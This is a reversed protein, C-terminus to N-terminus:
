LKWMGKSKNGSDVVSCMFRGKECYLGQQVIYCYKTDHTTIYSIIGPFSAM